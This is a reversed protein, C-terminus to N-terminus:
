NGLVVNSNYWFLFRLLDEHLHGSLPMVTRGGAGELM